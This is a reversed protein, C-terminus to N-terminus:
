YIKWTLPEKGRLLRYFDNLNLVYAFVFILFFLFYVFNYEISLYFSGIMGLVYMINNFYINEILNDCFKIIKKM